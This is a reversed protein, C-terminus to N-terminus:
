TSSSPHLFWAPVPELLRVMHKGVWNAFLKAQRPAAFMYYLAEPIEFTQSTIGKEILNKAVEETSLDKIEDFTLQHIETNLM